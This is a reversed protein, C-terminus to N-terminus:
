RELEQNLRLPEICLHVCCSLHLSSLSLCPRCSTTSSLACSCVPNKSSPPPPPPPTTTANEQSLANRCECRFNGFLRIATYNRNEKWKFLSQHKRSTQILSTDRLCVPVWLDIRPTKNPQKTLVSNCGFLWGFAKASKGVHLLLNTEQECWNHNHVHMHMSICFLLDVFVVHVHILVSNIRMKLKM